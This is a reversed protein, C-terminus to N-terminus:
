RDPRPHPEPRTVVAVRVIWSVSGFVVTRRDGGDLPRPRRRDIVLRIMLKLSGSAAAVASFGALKAAPRRHALLTREARLVILGSAM